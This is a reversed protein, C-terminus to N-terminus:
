RKRKLAYIGLASFSAIAMLITALEPVVFGPQTPPVSNSFLDGNEEKALVYILMRPESASSAMTVTFESPTSSIPGALFPVFAWYIAETTQLHDKISAVTYDSGGECGPPVKVSNVTEKTWSSITVPTAAGPWNVTVSGVLGNYCSEPMALFIHPDYGPGNQLDVNFTAPSSLMVASGYYSGHPELRIGAAFVPSVLLAIIMILMLSMFKKKM